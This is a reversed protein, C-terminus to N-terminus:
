KEEGNSGQGGAFRYPLAYPMATVDGSVKVAYLSAGRLLRAIIENENWTARSPIYLGARAM